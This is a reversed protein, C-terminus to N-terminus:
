VGVVDGVKIHLAVEVLIHQAFQCCRPLVALEARGLVDAVHHHFQHLGRGVVEDAVGGAACCAKQHGTRLIEAGVVLVAHGRLLPLMKCPRHEGAKVHVTGHETNRGHVQHKVGDGVRIDVILVTNGLLVVNAALVRDAKRVRRELAGHIGLADVVVQFGDGVGFLCFQKEERKEQPHQFGATATGTDHRVTHQETGALRVLADAFLQDLIVLQPRDDGHRGAHELGICAHGRRHQHKGLGACAAGVLHPEVIHFGVAERQIILAGLHLFVVDRVDDGPEM